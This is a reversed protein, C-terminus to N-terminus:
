AVSRMVWQGHLRAVLMRTMERVADRWDNRRARCTFQGSRDRVSARLEYSRGTRHLTLKLAFDGLREGFKMARRLAVLIQRRQSPKLLVNGANLQIM